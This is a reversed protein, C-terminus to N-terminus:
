TFDIYLLHTKLSGSMPNQPAQCHCLDKVTPPDGYGTYRHRHDASRQEQAHDPLPRPVQKSRRVPTVREKRLLAGETGQHNERQYRFPCKGGMM